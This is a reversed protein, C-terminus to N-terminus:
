ILGKERALWEPMTATGDGNDEVLGKPLWKLTSGDFFSVAKGSSSDEGVVGIVEVLDSEGARRM